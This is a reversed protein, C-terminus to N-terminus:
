NELKFCLGDSVFDRLQDKSYRKDGITRLENYGNSELATWDLTLGVTNVNECSDPHGSELLCSPTENQNGM